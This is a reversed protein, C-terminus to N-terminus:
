KRVATNAQLKAKQEDTLQVIENTITITLGDKTYSTTGLKLAVDKVSGSISMGYRGLYLSFYKDVGPQLYPQGPNASITYTTHWYKSYDPGGTGFINGPYYYTSDYVTYYVDYTTDVTGATIAYNTNTYITGSPFGGLSLYYTTGYHDYQGYVTGDNGLMYQCSSLALSLAAVALLSGLLKKM